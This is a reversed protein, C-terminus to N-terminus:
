NPLLPFLSVLLLVSLQGTLGGSQGTTGGSQGSGGGGGGGTVGGVGGEDPFLVSLSVSQGDSLSSSSIGSLEPLPFSVSNLQM